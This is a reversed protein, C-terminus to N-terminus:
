LQDPNLKRLAEWRPDTSESHTFPTLRKLMDPDCTSNGNEDDPHVIKAPLSLHVYEYIYPALDFKHETEPIIVVDDSEEEYEAGFKIILQQQSNIPFEFEDSCRDCPMLLRGNIQFGAIMMREQKEITVTVTIHGHQIQSYEFHEFFRDDIEFEFQHNGLALGVFQIIYDKLHDM